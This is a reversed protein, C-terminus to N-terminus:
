RSTAQQRMEDTSESTVFGFHVTNGGARLAKMFELGNMEPMNWDSLIVDPQEAEVAALGEKGNGAQVITHDGFGARKLTRAVIMRMTKSDDGILIKM